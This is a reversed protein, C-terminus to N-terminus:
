SVKEVFFIQNIQEATLEYKKAISMIESQTFEAGKNNIKLSITLPAIGLHKALSNNTDSNLAMISRLLPKNM